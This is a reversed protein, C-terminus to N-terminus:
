LFINRNKKTIARQLNPCLFSLIEFVNCSPAEFKTLKYLIILLISPSWEFFIYINKSNNGKAFKQCQFSSIELVALLELDPRTISPLKYLLQHFYIFIYKKKLYLRQM